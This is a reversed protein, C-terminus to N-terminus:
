PDGIARSREENIGANFFTAVRSRISEMLDVDSAPLPWGVLQQEAASRTAASNKASIRNSGLSGRWGSLSRNMRDFPCAAGGRDAAHAAAPGKSRLWSM